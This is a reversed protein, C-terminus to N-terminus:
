RHADNLECITFECECASVRAFGGFGAAAVVVMAPVSDGKMYWQFVEKRHASEM